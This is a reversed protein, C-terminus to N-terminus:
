FRGLVMRVHLFREAGILAAANSGAEPEVDAALRTGGAVDVLVAGGTDRRTGGITALGLEIPKENRVPPPRTVKAVPMAVVCAASFTTSSNFFRAAIIQSM